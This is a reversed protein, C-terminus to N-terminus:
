LSQPASLAGVNGSSPKDAGWIRYFELGSLVPSTIADVQTDSVITAKGDSTHGTVVRRM